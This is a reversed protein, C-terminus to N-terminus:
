GQDRIIRERRARRLEKRKAAMSETYQRHYDEAKKGRAELMEVDHDLRRQREEPSIDGLISYYEKRLSDEQAKETQELTQRAWPHMINIIELCHSVARRRAGNIDDPAAVGLIATSTALFAQEITLQDAAYIAWLIAESRRWWKPDLIRAKRFDIAGRLHARM